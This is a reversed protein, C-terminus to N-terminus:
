SVLAQYFFVFATVVNTCNLYQKNWINTQKAATKKYHEQMRVHNRQQTKIATHQQSEELVFM